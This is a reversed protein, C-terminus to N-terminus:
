GNAIEEKSLQSAVIEQYVDSTEMLEKHTGMGAIKGQDLVIIRDAQMVSTVKQAVVIMTSNKTHENLMGRLEAETKADLASFSDDFLYIEPKRVIARAISLRQKQGGSVNTGGQSIVSEYGEEMEDIFESARAIKAAEKVEDMTADKKGYRINDAVTGTFLLAQQPVLSIKQRLTDMSYDKVSVGDILIDGKSTDYFRPILNILTSKGSGTGGIIATYEGPRAEFSINEIAAESAGHDSHYYFSVDKFEIVGKSVSPEVVHDPNTIESDLNLVENIRIASASARPVMVFIMTLMLVSFMVQTAYQIFAMMDGVGMYGGDIRHSGFWIIAVSSVSFMFMIFPMMVAMLKNVKIAVDTLDRNAKEFRAEETKVRNFARIVRLGTLRERMVLNLKDVRKQMTKFMPIAQSAVLGIVIGMLIIVVVIVWTLPGDKSLAMIISGVAMLPAMTAIRLLMIAVNQVQVIDNTTRTILSATGTQDIEHLSYYTVKTFLKKRLSRGFNMGVKAALNAAIISCIGGVLAVGLMTLGTSLIFDTDGYVVGEDILDSMLTPLYLDTITRFFMFVIIFIIPVAFPKMYKLLKTM